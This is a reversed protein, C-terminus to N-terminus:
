ATQVRRKREKRLHKFKRFPYGLFVKRFLALREGLTTMTFPRNQPIYWNNIGTRKVLRYGNRAFHRHVALQHLHDEVLLMAPRHRALDFGQLVQLELGEVDISVLDIKPNGADALVDDLTRVEVEEVREIVVGENVVFGSYAGNADSVNIKARGRQEPAGVAYQFVRSGPRQARLAECNRALPEVLIGKWGNQEFLWTQSLETPHNAGVEVFFGDRRGGFYEWVLVDEGFQSYSTMTM